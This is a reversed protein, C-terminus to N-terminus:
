ARTAWGCDNGGDREWSVLEGVSLRLWCKQASLIINPERLNPHAVKATVVEGEGERQGLGLGLAPVPGVGTHDM